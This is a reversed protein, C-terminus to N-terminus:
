TSPTMDGSAPPPPPTVPALAQPMAPPYAQTGFRSLIVAGLGLMGVFLSILWGLIPVAGLVALLIVGVIVAVIPLIGHVKFGELVKEGVFRGLAVWGFLWAVALALLLLFAFPIGIIVIVLLITLMPAVLLTLCGVGLSPLASKEAVDSVRRTENPLFVVTLAGLAALALATVVGRVFGFMIGTVGSAFSYWIPYPFGRFSTGAGNTIGGRVTAGQKVNTSGGIAAVTGEVVAGPELTATGGFVVVGHDVLGSIDANGGFIVIDNGVHTGEELVLDGGFSVIDRSVTTGSAIRAGCGFLIVNRPSYGQVVTTGGMCVHDGPNPGQAFVPTALFSMLVIAILVVLLRKM